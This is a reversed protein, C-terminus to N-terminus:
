GALGYAEQGHETIDLGRMEDVESVRLVGIAKMAYFVGLMTVFAWIPIALSGIIQPGLSHSGFIGTAIGGWIGCLGHVPWAGVPDDIKLKELLKFGGVVLVGAVLGILIASFNTVSDCNATIGVLGALAGSLSMTLDPKKSTFWTTIMAFIAGAAAALSTNVAILMVANVNESGALALQSGPNFGYWGIWLIFVGLAAFTMNHAPLPKANPGFRGIRPGLVIAGALGAFGGVAHVVLSGAFDYFGLQDLWGGGWKWFGSIPYILGTLIISYVIYGAFKMRGAVAGSVITAATAAFAVQFLFDIQPHLNGAGVDPSETGIGLGGWAFWGNAVDSGYMLNYGVIWFVIIGFSLDMLNKTLINVTNKAHNLGSELMAFGAQMFLVLVATIFLFMNDIAYAAQAVADPATAEEAVLAPTFAALLAAGWLLKSKIRLMGM